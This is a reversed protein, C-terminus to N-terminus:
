ERQKRITNESKLYQIKLKQTKMERLEQNKEKVKTIEM